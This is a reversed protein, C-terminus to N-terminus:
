SCKQATLQFTLQFVIGLIDLCNVGSTNGNFIRIVGGTNIDWLRATKDRSGTVIKTGDRSFCVSLVTDTHGSFRKILGGTNIDWLYTNRDSSAALIKTGDPSFTVQNLCASNGSFTYIVKGTNSDWLRAKGDVSGTIVLKGDPSLATCSMVNYGFTRMPVSVTDGLATNMCAFFVIVAIIERV